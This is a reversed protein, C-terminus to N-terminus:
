SRIVAKRRFILKWGCYVVRNGSIATEQVFSIRGFANDDASIRGAATKRKRKQQRRAFCPNRERRSRAKKRRPRIKGGSAFGNTGVCIAASHEIPRVDAWTRAVIQSVGVRAIRQGRREICVESTKRWEENVNARIFNQPVIGRTEGFASSGRTNADLKFNPWDDWVGPLKRRVTNWFGPLRQTFTCREQARHCGWFCRSPQHRFIGVLAALHFFDLDVHEYDAAAKGPHAHGDLQAFRAHIRKQEELLAVVDAAGPVVVAIGTARAVYGRVQIGERELWRRIPRAHIRPLLFNVVIQFAAHLTVFEGGVDPQMRAKLLRSPILCLAHPLGDGTRPHADPCPHQDGADTAQVHRLVGCQRAQLTKRAGCKMRGGPIVADVQIAFVYGHNASTCAGDLENGLDGRAGSLKRKELARRGPNHRTQIKGDAVLPPLSEATKREDHPRKPLENEPPLLKADEAEETIAKNASLRRFDGSMMELLLDAVWFEARCQFGLVFQAAFSHEDRIVVIWGQGPGVYLQDGGGDRFDALVADYRRVAGLAGHVDQDEARTKTGCFREDANPQHAAAAYFNVIGPALAHACIKAHGDAAKGVEKQKESGVRSQSVIGDNKHDFRLDAVHHATQREHFAALPLDEFHSWFCLLLKDSVEM